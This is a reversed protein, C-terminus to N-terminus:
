KQIAFERIYVVETDPGMELKIWGMRDMGCTSTKVPIYTFASLPIIECSEASDIVKSWLTDGGQSYWESTTESNYDTPAHLAHWWKNKWVDNSHIIEGPNAYSVNEEIHMVTGPNGTDYCDSHTIIVANVPNLAYCFTDTYTYLTDVPTYRFYSDSSLHKILVKNFVLGSGGGGDSIVHSIVFDTDNEQDLDLYYESAVYFGGKLTVNLDWRFVASLDDIILENPYGTHNLNTCPGKDKRCSLSCIAIVGPVFLNAFRRFPFRMQGSDM